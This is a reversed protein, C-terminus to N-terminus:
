KKLLSYAILIKRINLWHLACILKSNTHLKAIKYEENFQKKYSNESKSDSHKRFASLYENIICPDVEKGFRLWLDYDMAYHYTSNLHGVEDILSKRFFVAPQSIFNEILLKRFRYRLLHFDKYKTNLSRSDKGLSDIIKCKGFLWQCNKHLTFYKLVKQLANELYIDDSNLWGIIEGTSMAIGKNVAHAQGKDEESVWTIYKSYKELIEITSDTSGGDVVILELDFDGKQSLVSNITTEIFAAQNYSPTIISIKM